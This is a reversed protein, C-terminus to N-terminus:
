QSPYNEARRIRKSLAPHSHLTFEVWAPPDAEALNQDSLRRLAAAYAAGNGTLRLAYSDALNERWRSFGNNLPSTLLSYIGLCIVFLPLAALDATSQFGFAKVGWNLVLSTLFLGGLTIGTGVAMGLPIDHNAQHGLEHALVTEIEDPTFEDLLTDGLIIRRTKGLGTLGANASKTRRSMDFRFVGMVPAGAKKALGMLRQELDRDEEALPTFKYFIPFLLVPALNALLVNFLLLFGATWLWWAEQVSRLLYYIVELILGGLVISVLLGKGLDVLWGKLDQNSQKFRHPLIYGTYYSLPLDLLTFAGGFIAGFVLVALWPNSTWGRIWDRLQISWGTLLWALLFATGLALDMFTFRRQIRAYEKAQRQREPDLNTIEPPADQEDSFM